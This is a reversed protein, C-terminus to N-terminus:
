PYITKLYLIKKKSFKNKAFKIVVLGEKSNVLDKGKDIIEKGHTLINSGHEELASGHQKISDLVKKFKSM